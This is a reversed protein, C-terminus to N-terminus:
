SEGRRRRAVVAIGLGMLALGALSFDNNSSGVTRCACASSSENGPGTGPGQGSASSSADTTPGSTQGDPEFEGTAPTLVVFMANKNSGAVPGSITAAWFSKVWPKYGGEVHWGPNEIDGICHMTNRGQNQPNDGYLNSQMGSDSSESIINDFYKTINDQSGFHLLAIQGQGSAIPSASILAISKDLDSTDNVEGALGTCMTSHTQNTFGEVVELKHQPSFNYNADIDLTEITTTSSGKEDSNAGAGNSVNYSFVIQSDFQGQAVTVDNPYYDQTDSAEEVIFTETMKTGTEPDLGVAVVGESPPRDNGYPGGIVLLGPDGGATEGVERTWQKGMTLSQRAINLNSYAINRWALDVVVQNAPMSNPDTTVHVGYGYVEGGNGNRFSSFAAWGGTIVLPDELSPVAKMVVGPGSGGNDDDNTDSIQQAPAIEQCRENIAKVYTRTTDTEAGLDASDSGFAVLVVGEGSAHRIGFGAISPRNFNRNGGTYDSIMVNSALVEPGDETMKISTCMGQWYGLAESVNGSMWVSQLILDGNADRYKTLVGHENTGTNQGIEGTYAPGATLQVAQIRLAKTAPYAPNEAAFAGPAVTMLTVAGFFALRSKGMSM